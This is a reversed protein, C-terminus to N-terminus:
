LSNFDVARSGDGLKKGATYTLESPFFYTQKSISGTYCSSLVFCLDQFCAWTMAEEEANVNCLTFPQLILM